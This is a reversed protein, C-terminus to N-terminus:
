CNEASGDDSVCQWITSLRLFRFSRPAPMRAQPNAGQRTSDLLVGSNQFHKLAKGSSTWSGEVFARVLRKGGIM